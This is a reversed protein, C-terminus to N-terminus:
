CEIDNASERADDLAQNYEVLSGNLTACNEWGELADIYDLYADKFTQCNVPTPDTGYASAANTVATLEDQFEENLTATCLASSPSNSGCSIFLYCFIVLSFKLTKM